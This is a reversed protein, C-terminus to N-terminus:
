PSRERKREVSEGNSNGRNGTQDCNATENGETEERKRHDWM